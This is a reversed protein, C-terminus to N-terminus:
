NKLWKSLHWVIQCYHPRVLEWGSSISRFMWKLMVRGKKVVCLRLTRRMMSNQASTVFSDSNIFICMCTSKYGGGWDLHLIHGDGAFLQRHCMKMLWRDGGGVEPLRHLWLYKREAYIINQPKGSPEAPLSDVQLAPCVLGANIFRCSGRGSVHSKSHVIHGRHQELSHHPSRVKRLQPCKNERRWLPSRNSIRSFGCNKCASSSTGAVQKKLYHKGPILWTDSLTFCPEPRCM